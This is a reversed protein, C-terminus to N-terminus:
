EHHKFGMQRLHTLYKTFASYLGASEHYFIGYKTCLEKVIPQLKPLHCHNVTPFLHHEIQCNLGGTFWFVLKNNPSFTHSTLVQHAYYDPSFVDVNEPTLHNVQSSLMFCMSVLGAPVIAWLVAKHLPLLLFPWVYVVAFVLARGLWHEITRRKTLPMVRVSRNYFGTSFMQVPKLFAMAMTGIFWIPVWTLHQHRHLPRWRLSKTHREMKNNHYLDPDREPINPYAHHGIVHQHYWELPSSFYWSIYTAVKNVVPSRSLGFHSGDHFINVGMVWYVLPSAVLAWWEGRLFAPLTAVYLLVMVIMEVWRLPTAKTATLLPVGRRKAEAQFHVKVRAILETAFDSLPAGSSNGGAEKSEFEPWVFLENNDRADSPQLKAAEEEPIQHKRLIGDLYSRSTFPHHAEFLATADRGAGLSLMLDGGPHKFGSMDYWKGHIRMPDVKKAVM